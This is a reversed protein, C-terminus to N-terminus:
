QTSPEYMCLEAQQTAEERANLLEAIQEIETVHFAQQRRTTGKALAITVRHQSNPDVIGAFVRSGFDETRLWIQHNPYAMELQMFLHVLDSPATAASFREETM